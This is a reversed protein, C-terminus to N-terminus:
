VLSAAHKFVAEMLPNWAYYVDPLNELSLMMIGLSENPVTIETFNTVQANFCDAWRTIEGDWIEYCGIPVIESLEAGAEERSERIAAQVPTEGPEVRGSPICWGRGVINAVLVQNGDWGFVLVAYPAEPSSTRDAHFRFTQTGITAEPFEIM